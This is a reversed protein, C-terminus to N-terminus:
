KDRHLLWMIKVNNVRKVPKGDLTVITMSNVVESTESLVFVVDNEKFSSKKNEDLDTTTIDYVNNRKDEGELANEYVNTITVIYIDYKLYLFITILLLIILTYIVIIAIRRNKM